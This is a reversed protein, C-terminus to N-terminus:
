FYRKYLMMAHVHRSTVDHSKISFMVNICCWSTSTVHRLSTVRWSKKYFVYRKYFCWSTVHRLFFFFFRSHWHCLLDDQSTEPFLLTAFTICTHRSKILSALTFIIQCSQCVYQLGPFTQMMLLEHKERKFFKVGNRTAMPWWLMLRLSPM